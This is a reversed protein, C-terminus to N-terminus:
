EARRDLRHEKGRVRERESPRVYRSVLLQAKEFLASMQGQLWHWPLMLGIRLKGGKTKLVWKLAM